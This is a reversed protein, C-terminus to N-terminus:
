ILRADADPGLMRLALAAYKAAVTEPTVPGEPRLWQALGVCMASIAKGTLGVDIPALGLEDVAQRIEHDLLQQVDDRKAAIRRYATDDLSRMESAGIFALDNRRAHYLALAEVVFAVRSIPDDSEDRAQELRWILDSMTIELIRVLLAHKSAYHHYVGPVSMNARRAISRITAGHYGTELFSRIAAALVDDIPLEAFERWHRTAGPQVVDAAGAPPRIDAGDPVLTHITVGLARAIEQLREVSVRTRGNEIASVTGPSVGIEKALERLSMSSTKRQDRIAGGLSDRLEM